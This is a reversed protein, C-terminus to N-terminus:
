RMSFPTRAEPSRFFSVPKRAFRLTLTFIFRWRFLSGNAYHARAVSDLM